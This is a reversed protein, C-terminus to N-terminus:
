NFYMKDIILINNGECGSIKKKSQRISIHKKHIILSNNGECYSKKRFITNISHRLTKFGYKKRKFTEPRERKLFM